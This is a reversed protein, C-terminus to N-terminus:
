LMRAKDLAFFSFFAVCFTAHLGLYNEENSVPHTVFILDAAIPHQSIEKAYSVYGFTEQLSEVLQNNCLRSVLDPNATVKDCDVLLPPLAVREELYPLNEIIRKCARYATTADFPLDTTALLNQMLHPHPYSQADLFNL